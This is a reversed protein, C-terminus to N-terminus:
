EHIFSVRKASNEPQTGLQEVQTRESFAYFVMYTNLTPGANTQQVSTDNLEYFKGDDRLCVAWYHGGHQGGSHEVQAVLRYILATLKTGPAAPREEFVLEKPFPTIQKRDYKKFVVPLIEPVMTLITCQFQEGRVGCATNTCRYDQDVYDNHSKIFANMPVSKNFYCDLDAFKDLQQNKLSPPVDFVTNLIERSESWQTCTPCKLAKRYRHRFLNYIEGCSEVGDMLLMFSEHADQQAATWTVKDKRHKARDLLYQWLEYIARNPNSKAKMKKYIDLLFNCAVNEIFTTDDASELAVLKEFVATCSLLAQVMANFHCTNGYNTLGQASIAYETHYPILDAM